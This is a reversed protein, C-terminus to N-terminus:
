KGAHGSNLNILYDIKCKTLSRPEDPNDWNIKGKSQFMDLLDLVEYDRLSNMKKKRWYEVFALTYAGNLKPQLRVSDPLIGRCMNRFVARDYDRPRFMETPLSYVFRILRIDALPYVMEIGYQAAYLTESEMRHTVHVASIRSKLIQRFSSQFVFSNQLEIPKNYISDTRLLSQDKIKTNSKNLKWKTAYYSIMQRIGKLPSPTLLKILNSISKKHLYDYFFKGARYSVCEDGPFGSMVYGVNNEAARMFLTSQWVTDANAHGGMVKNILEFEEFAGQFHFDDILHHNEKNLSAHELIVQQTAQEDKRKASYALTKDSLVFSFTHIRNVDTNRALLVTIASSDMGGSLQSGINKHSRTRSVVAQVFLRNLEEYLSSETPFGSLDLPQLEWYRIENLQQTKADFLIYHAPKLRFINEFFTDEVAQLSKKLAKAIYWKNLPLPESFATKILPIGSAFLLVNDTLYYFLPKIGLHDKAMFLKKSEKHWVVFSFDGILYDLCKDQYIEYLHMLILHDTPSDDPLSTDNGRILEILEDRNDLRCGAVLVYQPSEYITTNKNSEPSNHLYWNVLLVNESQYTALADAKFSSLSYNLVKDKLTPLNTTETFSICGFFHSM